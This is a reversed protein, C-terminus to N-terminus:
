ITKTRAFCLTQRTVSDNKLLELSIPTLLTASNVFHYVGSWRTVKYNSKLSKMIVNRPYISVLRRLTGFAEACEDRVVLSDKIIQEVTWAAHDLLKGQLLGAVGRLDAALKDLGASCFETTIQCTQGHRSIKRRRPLTLLRGESCVVLRRIGHWVITKVLLKIAVMAKFNKLSRAKGVLVVSGDAKGTTSSVSLPLLGPTWASFCQGVSNLFSTHHTKPLPLMESVEHWVLSGHSLMFEALELSITANSKAPWNLKTSAQLVAAQASSRRMRGSRAAMDYQKKMDVLKADIPREKATPADTPVRPHPSKRANAVPSPSRGGRAVGGPQRPIAVPAGSAGRFMSSSARARSRAVAQLASGEVSKGVLKPRRIATPPLPIQPGQQRTADMPLSDHESRDGPAISMSKSYSINRKIPAAPETVPSSAVPALRGLCRNQSTSVSESVSKLFLSEMEQLRSSTRKFLSTSWNYALLRRRNRKVTLVFAFSRRFFALHENKFGFLSKAYEGKDGSRAYGVTVEEFLKPFTRKAVHGDENDAYDLSFFVITYEPCDIPSDKMFGVNSSTDSVIRVAVRRQKDRELRVQKPTTSRSSRFICLKYHKDQVLKEKSEARLPDLIGRELLDLAVSAVSSSRVIGDYVRRLSAPHPIAEASELINCLAPLGRCLRDLEVTKALPTATAQPLPLPSETILGTQMRELHREIYWSVLAQTMSLLIWQHVVEGDLNTDSITVQIFATANADTAAPATADGVEEFIMNISPDDISCLSETAIAAHVNELRNGKVSVFSVCVIALGAGAQRSFQAGKETLTSESQFDPDLKSPATNYYFLLDSVDFHLNGADPSSGVFSEPGNTWETTSLPHFFTSGCLNQRFFLVIMGPDFAAIPFAYTRTLIPRSQAPDIELETWQAQFTKVFDIDTQRWHYQPNKTLVSSLMDVGIILLRKQLLTRLQQTISPGPSILGHVVFEIQADGEFGGSTGAELTLLRMYFVAGTEDKYVFVQRRNNVSLMHLVTAELSRIVHVPNSACRHYLPFSTRYVAPCDFIGDHFPDDDQNPTSSQVDPTILLRSSARSSHLKRLLLLQNVRHCSVSVVEWMLELVESAKVSGGPHYIEV